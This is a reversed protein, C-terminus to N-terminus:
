KVGEVTFATCFVTAAYNGEAYYLPAGVLIRNGAVHAVDHKDITAVGNVTVYVVYLDEYEGYKAVKSGDELTEYSSTVNIVKETRVEKVKGLTKGTASDLVTDGVKFLALNDGSVPTIKVTFDITYQKENSLSNSRSVAFFVVAAIIVLITLLVLIDILNFKTKGNVKDM